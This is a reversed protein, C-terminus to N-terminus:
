LRKSMYPGDRKYGLRAYYGRVGVGSIVVLKNKRYMKSINEAEKLLRKGFGSHQIKGKTGISEAEGYVHLERILVSDETIEKRLFQSPFRLRCFGFLVNNKVDDISIFFEIGKSAKYYISNLKLNKKKIKYNPHNKLYLGIERCRICQCKKGLEDIYQRLNTIDVGAEIVYSPIDRQIRMIRCYKPIIKKFRIILKAAEKTTLPKYKGQKYLEYLKTGKLVMCPYIKLMDPNFEPSFLGKMGEFDRKLNTLGPMYHLNIKFGLDKLIRISEISDKITHGREIFKLVDDYVSQIGLEIRTAGLELMENGQKLKGYDPRTEITLGVCKVKSSENEKHIKKLNIKDKGKEKKNKLELVKKQVRRVREENEIDGPLEFFNNFKKISLKDNIFFLKGFDNLAKFAYYVFEEQYARPFSPFTGGMIILEIKEPIKNMAVYQELRNFVQLYPDYFNRIARRTAPEKGTYSQPVTGFYSDIGGPCYICKGHKCAIPKTMIAIVNVGSIARIPKIGMWKLKKREDSDAVALIDSNTPVEKFKYKKIIEKKLSDLQKQNTIKKKKIERLIEKLLKKM